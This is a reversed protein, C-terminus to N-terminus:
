TRKGGDKACRKRKMVAFSRIFQLEWLKKQMGQLDQSHNLLHVYKLSLPEQTCAMALNELLEYWLKTSDEQFLPKELILSLRELNRPLTKTYQHAQLGHGPELLLRLSHMGNNLHRLKHTDQLSSCGLSVTRCRHNWRSTVCHYSYEELTDKHELLAASLEPCQRLNLEQPDFQPHDSPSHTFAFPFSKLAKIHSLILLPEHTM